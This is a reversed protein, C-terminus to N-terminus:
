SILHFITVPSHETAPVDIVSRFPALAIWAKYNKMNLWCAIADMSLHAQMFVVTSLVEHRLSVESERLHHPFAKDMIENYLLDLGSMTDKLPELGTIFTLCGRFDEDPAGIFRVASAAYIFLGDSRELLIELEDPPPWSNPESSCRAISSLSIQFYM